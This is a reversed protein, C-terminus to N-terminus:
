ACGISGFRPWREIGSPTRFYVARGARSASIVLDFKGDIFGTNVADPPLVSRAKYPELVALSSVIHHPDRVYRRISRPQALPWAIQLFSVSEWGCHRPGSFISLKTPSVRRGDFTFSHGLHSGGCGALVLVSALV